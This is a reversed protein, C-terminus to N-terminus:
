SKLHGTEAKSLCRHLEGGEMLAINVGFPLKSLYQLDSVDTPNMAHLVHDHHSCPPLAKRWYVGRIIENNGPHEVIIIPDEIKRKRRFDLVARRCTEWDTYDDIIIYGGHNVADYLVDLAEMTSFYTDGDLRLISFRLHPNSAMLRPLSENFYGPVFHLPGGSEYSFGLVTAYSQVIELSVGKDTGLTHAYADVGQAQSTNKPAPIGSFSDCLYVTRRGMQNLSQLVAAGYFSMGGRWVGTEIVHGLIGDNVVSRILSAFNDLRREGAMTLMQQSWNWHSGDIKFKADYEYVQNLVVQKFLHLYEQSLNAIPYARECNFYYPAFSGARRECPYFVYSSLARRIRSLFAIAVSVTIVFLFQRSRM